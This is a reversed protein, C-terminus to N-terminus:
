ARRASAVTPILIAQVAAAIGDADLEHENRLVSQTGQAIFADPLGLTRVRVGTLGHRALLETIASGFGGLKSNEEVTVIHGCRKALDVVLTEDIPKAFRANVVAASVGQNAVLRAADIAPRVTNGIALIAVDDGDAVLQAKGLPVTHFHDDMEIGLGAGRPYRIAFPGGYSVATALMNRLENEDAPAALVLNPIHRLYSLDFVGHHTPGDEGVLGGRDIAFVVPLNQLCVDHVIQDYARQLFTSYIAVVPKYGERALGAAFTVAHGEAIGVDYYRDSFVEAFRAMGTGDPMAATIGVIKKDDRALEILADAFVSTYSPAAKPKRRVEGTAPDFSGVGHFKSPAKEAPAYGKGKTTIAHVLLPGEIERVNRFTTLLQHLNHGDVPGVYDFGLAAFLVGPTVISQLSTEARKAIYYVDDGISPISKMATKLARRFRTFWKGTAKTSLLRSLAGVNPSISFQNDNLVILINNKRSGAMNLAEFAMGSSISGDGIVAVVRDTKGARRLAESIGLAASISTSAHGAGFVDYFSEECKPFGSIGGRQRLSDFCARRGTLIKHAYTQHGVDWILRDRPTDFAYHLAIAIEVAGLSSSLHGGTKAVTEVILERVEVAVRPLDREPIRRLDSPDDIHPLLPTDTM